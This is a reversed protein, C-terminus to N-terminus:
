DANLGLILWDTPVNGVGLSSSVTAGNMLWLALGGSNNDRWLVDSMADANFDHTNRIQPM